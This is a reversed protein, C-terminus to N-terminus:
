PPTPAPQPHELAQDSAAAVAARVDADLRDLEAATAVGEDILLRRAKRIPDGATRPRGNPPPGTPRSTM